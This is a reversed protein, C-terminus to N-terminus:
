GVCSQLAHQWADASGAGGQVLHASCAAARLSPLSPCIMKSVSQSCVHGSAKSPSVASWWVGSQLCAALDCCWWRYSPAPCALPESNVGELEVKNVAATSSM